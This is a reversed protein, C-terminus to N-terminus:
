VGVHQVALTAAEGAVFVFALALFRAVGKTLRAKCDNVPRDHAITDALAGLMRQHVWTENQAQVAPSTFNRLQGRGMGRYKQPMLVGGIALLVALLLCAIALFFFTQAVPRGVAGLNHKFIAGALLGNGTLILGSYGTLQWAKTDLVRGRDREDAVADTAIALLAAVGGANPTAANGSGSDPESAASDDREFCKKCLLSQLRNPRDFPTTADPAM